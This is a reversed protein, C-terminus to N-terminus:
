RNRVAHSALKKGLSWASGPVRHSESVVEEVARITWRVDEESLILPPLFKVVQTGHGAVQSLIRHQAFLPITSMQCFLGPNARELLRWATKLKLSEPEGFRLGVMLGKGRVDGICELDAQISQLGAKLQRGRVRANEM